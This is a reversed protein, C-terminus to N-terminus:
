LVERFKLGEVVEWKNTAANLADWFDELMRGYAQAELEKPWITQDILRERREIVAAEAAAIKSGPNGPMRYDVEHKVFRPWFM